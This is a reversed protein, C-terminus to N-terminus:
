GCGEGSAQRGAAIKRTIVDDLSLRGDILAEKAARGLRKVRHEASSAASRDGVAQEFVLHLPGKGRLYNAGRLGAEHERLRRVVDIAIGTYLSGDACRVVYLSFAGSNM